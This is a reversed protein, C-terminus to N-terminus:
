TGFNDLVEIKYLFFMAVHRLHTYSIILINVVYLPMVVSEFMSTGTQGGTTPIINHLDFSCLAWRMLDTTSSERLPFQHIAEFGKQQASFLGVCV